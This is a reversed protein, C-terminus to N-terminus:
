CTQILDPTTRCDSGFLNIGSMIIRQASNGNSRAGQGRSQHLTINKSHSPRASPLFLSPNSGTMNTNKDSVSTSIIRQQLNETM